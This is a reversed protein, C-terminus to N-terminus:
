NPTKSNQYSQVYLEAEKLAEKLDLNWLRIRNIEQHGDNTGFYAVAIKSWDSSLRAASIYGNARDSGLQISKSKSLDESKLLEIYDRSILIITKDSQSFKLDLISFKASSIGKQFQDDLRNELKIEYANENQDVTATMKGDHSLAIFKSNQSSKAATYSEDNHNSRTPLLKGEYNWVKVTGDESATTITKDDVNFEISTIWDTYGQFKGNDYGDFKSFCNWFKITKDHSCSILRKGDKSFSVKPVEKEHKFTRMLKSKESWQKENKFWLKINGGIDTSAMLRGDFSFTVYLVERDQQHLPLQGASEGNTNWFKIHKDRSSSVLVKSDPCFNISTVTENHAEIRQLLEGNRSWIIVVGKFDGSAIMKGDPSFAVCKVFDKHGKLTKVATGKRNWLMVNNDQSVSALIIEDKLNCNVDGPSFSISNVGDLHGRLIHPKSFTFKKENKTDTNISIEWLQINGDSSASAMFKGDSSFTLDGIARETANIEEILLGNESWIKILGGSSASAIIKNFSNWSVSTVEDDANISNYEALESFVQGLMVLFRLRSYEHRELNKEQQKGTEILHVLADLKNNSDFRRKSEAISADIERELKEQESRDRDEISAHIFKKELED